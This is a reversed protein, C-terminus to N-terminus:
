QSTFVTETVLDLMARTLKLRGAFMAMTTEDPVSNELAEFPIACVASRAALSGLYGARPRDRLRRGGP